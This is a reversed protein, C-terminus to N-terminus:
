TVSIRATKTKMWKGISYLVHNNNSSLVAGINMYWCCIAAVDQTFVNQKQPQHFLSSGSIHDNSHLMLFFMKGTPTLEAIWPCSGLPCIPHHSSTGNPFRLIALMSANLILRHNRSLAVQPGPIENPNKQWTQGPILCSRQQWWVIGIFEEPTASLPAPSLFMQFLWRLGSGSCYM